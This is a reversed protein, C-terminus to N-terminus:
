TGRKPTRDFEIPKPKVVQKALVGIAHLLQMVQWQVFRLMVLVFRGFPM